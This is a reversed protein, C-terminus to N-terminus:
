IEEEEDWPIKYFGARTGRGNETQNVPSMYMSVTKHPIGVMEALEKTSDAIAIPFEYKDRTTAIYLYRKKSM